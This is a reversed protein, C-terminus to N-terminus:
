AGPLILMADGFSYFRYQEAIAMSYLDMLRQRGILASVLMLLSSRPLHFNTVLGEVVQWQYGPYIFLDTRGRYPQLKGEQVATELARAVTTGVAIVRGGRAQTAQVQQVTEEPVEVSEAHMSHTTIDEAEVPRFTGVGVHLTVFSHHIGRKQLRALLDPTFHLGATPAAVAGPQSAYITQYQEPQAQSKKLYPPFPVQGLQRLKQDLSECPNLLEFQLIRGRSIPDIDLVTARLCPHDLPGFEICVGRKSRRGPRVLALWCHNARAELLLVEVNPQLTGVADGGTKRGVLRAPIVRTNNLVLLDGPQLLEPLDRFLCHQHAASVVLLRASDRPVVPDQAIREQPLHYDYAVLSQDALNTM